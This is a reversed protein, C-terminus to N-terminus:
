QSCKGATKFVPGCYEPDKFYELKQAEYCSQKLFNLLNETYLSEESLTLALVSLCVTVVCNYRVYKREL